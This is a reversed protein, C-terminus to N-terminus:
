NGEKTYNILFSSGSMRWHGLSNSVNGSPFWHIRVATPSLSRVSFLPPDPDSFLLVRVKRSRDGRLPWTRTHRWTKPGEGGGSEAWVAVRFPTNPTLLEHLYFHQRHLVYTEEARGSSLDKPIPTFPFRFPLLLRVKSPSSSAASSGTPSFRLTGPPSCPVRVWPISVCITCKPPPQPPSIVTSHPYVTLSPFWSPINTHHM